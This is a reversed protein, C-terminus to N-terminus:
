KYLKRTLKIMKMQQKLKTGGGVVAGKNNILIKNTKITHNLLAFSFLFDKAKPYIKAIFLQMKIVERGNM